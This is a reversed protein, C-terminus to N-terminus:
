SRACQVLTSCDYDGCLPYVALTCAKTCYIGAIPLSLTCSLVLDNDTLCISYKLRIMGDILGYSEHSMVVFMCITTYCFNDKFILLCKPIALLFILPVLLLIEVTQCVNNRYLESQM